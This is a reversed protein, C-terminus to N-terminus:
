WDRTIKYLSAKEQTSKIFYIDGEPSVAPYGDTKTYDYEFICTLLGKKNFVCIFGDMDWYFYGKHDRGIYTLYPTSKLSVEYDLGDSLYKIGHNQDKYYHYFVEYNTTQLEGNIILRKKPDITLGDIDGNKILELTEDENMLKLYNEDSDITPEKISWLKWNFDYIFLTNSHFIIDKPNFLFNELKLNCLLKWQDSKIYVVASTKKHFAFIYEKQNYISYNFFNGKHIQEFEFDKDLIISRRNKNDSIVLNENDFFIIPILTGPGGQGLDAGLKTNDSNDIIYRKILELNYKKFSNSFILNTICFLLLIIVRKKM